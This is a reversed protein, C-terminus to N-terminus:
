ISLILSSESKLVLEYELTQDLNVNKLKVKTGLGITNKKIKTDINIVADKINRELELIRVENMENADLASKYAANESLDGQERAKDIDDAIM